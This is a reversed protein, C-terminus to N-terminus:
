QDAEENREYKLWMAVGYIIHCVGFGAAWFFIGYSPWWLSIIGLALMTYGLYRIEGLTYKSGNVLALGYFILCSPVVLEYYMAFGIGKFLLYLIFIGGVIMPLATNWLLRRSATGWITLGQKRTRRFTFLFACALAAVLVVVAITFLDWFLEKPVMPYMQDQYQARIMTQAVYAGILAIIGASIGSWGSLSIFRSSREMMNRIDKLAELGRQEQEM